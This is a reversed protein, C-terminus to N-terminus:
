HKHKVENRKIDYQSKIGPKSVGAFQLRSIPGLNLGIELDITESFLIQCYATFLLPFLYYPKLM